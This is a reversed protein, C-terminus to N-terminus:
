LNVCGLVKHAKRGINNAFSALYNTSRNSPWFVFALFSRSEVYFKILINEHCCERVSGEKQAWPSVISGLFVSNGAEIKKKYSTIGQSSSM